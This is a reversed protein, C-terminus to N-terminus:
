TGTNFGDYVIADGATAGFGQWAMFGVKGTTPVDVPWAVTVRTVWDAEQPPDNAGGYTQLVANGANYYLRIWKDTIGGAAGLNSASGNVIKHIFVTSINDHVVQLIAGNTQCASGDTTTAPTGFAIGGYFTPDSVIKVYHKNLATIDINSDYVWGVTRNATTDSQTLRLAGGSETVPFNAGGFTYGAIGLMDRKAWGAALTNDNFNDTISAATVTVSFTTDKTQAGFTQRVVVSQAGLPAAAPSSGVTVAGTSSNIALCGTGDSVISWVVNLASPSLTGKAAGISDSRSVSSISGTADTLIRVGNKFDVIARYRNSHGGAGGTVPGSGTIPYGINPWVYGWANVYNGGDNTTDLPDSLDFWQCYCNPFNLEIQQAYYLQNTYQGGDSWFNTRFTHDTFFNNYGAEYFGFKKAYSSNPGVANYHVKAFTIENDIATKTQAIATAVSGTYSQSLGADPYLPVAICDVHDKVYGGAGDTFDLMAPAINGGQNQLTLVRMLKNNVGNAPGINLANFASEMYAFMEVSKQVYRHYWMMRTITINSTGITPATTNSCFFTTNKYGYPPTATTTADIDQDIPPRGGTVYWFDFPQIEGTTDADTARSWVGGSNVIYVGNQKPDTQGVVLVRNGNAPVTGDQAAPTGSLTINSDYVLVVSTKASPHVQGRRDAENSAQHNNQYRPNWVENSLEVAVKKGTTSAFTALKSALTQYYTSTTTTGNAATGDVNYMVNHWLNINQLTAIQIIQDIPMGDRYYIDAENQNYNAASCRPFTLKGDGDVPYYLLPYRYNPGPPVNTENALNGFEVGTWHVNRLFPDNGFVMNTIKTSWSPNLANAVGVPLLSWNTAYKGGGAHSLRLIVGAAPNDEQYDFKFRIKNSAIQSVDLSNGNIIQYVGTITGPGAADVWTLEYTLTKDEPFNFYLTFVGAPTGSVYGHATRYADGLQTSTADQIESGGILNKLPPCLGWYDKYGNNIGGNFQPQVGPNNGSMSNSSTAYNTGSANSAGVLCTITAGVDANVITYSSSNPAGIIDSGNRKWTYSFTVPSNLWTGTSCSIALGVNPTGSLLPAVTNQPAPISPTGIPSPVPVPWQDTKKKKKPTDVM